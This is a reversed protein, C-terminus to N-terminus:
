DFKRKSALLDEYTVRSKMIEEMMLDSLKNIKWLPGTSTNKRKRYDYLFYGDRFKRTFASHGEPRVNFMLHPNIDLDIITENDFVHKTWTLFDFTDMLESNRQTRYKRNMPGRYEMNLMVKNYTFARFRVPLKYGIGGAVFYRDGDVEEIRAPKCLSLSDKTLPFDKLSALFNGKTVEKEMVEKLIADSRKNCEELTGRNIVLKSVHCYVAYGENRKRTFTSMGEPHERFLLEPKIDVDVIREKELMMLMYDRYDEITLKNFSRRMQYSKQMGVYQFYISGSENLINCRVKIPLWLGKGQIVLYNKGESIEIRPPIIDKKMIFGLTLM